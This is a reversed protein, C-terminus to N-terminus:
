AGNAAESRVYAPCGGPLRAKEAAGIRRAHTRISSPRYFFVFVRIRIHSCHPSPLSLQPPPLAASATTTRRAVHTHAHPLSLPLSPLPVHAARAPRPNHACTACAIRPDPAAGGAKKTRVPAFTCTCTSRRERLRARTRLRGVPDEAVMPPRARSTNATVGTEFRRVSHQPHGLEGIACGCRARGQEEQSSKRSTGVRDGSSRVAGSGRHSSLLVCVAGRLDAAPQLPPPRRVAAPGCASAQPAASRKLRSGRARALGTIVTVLSRLTRSRSSALQTVDLYRQLSDHKFGQLSVLELPDGAFQLRRAPQPSGATHVISVISTRPRCPQSLQACAGRLSHCAGPMQTGLDGTTPSIM